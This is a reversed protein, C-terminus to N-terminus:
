APPRLNTKRPFHLVIHFVTHKKADAAAIFREVVKPGLAKWDCARSALVLAVNATGTNDVPLQQFLEKLEHSRIGEGDLDKLSGDEQLCLVFTLPPLSCDESVYKIEAHTTARHNIKSSVELPLFTGLLVCLAIITGVVTM